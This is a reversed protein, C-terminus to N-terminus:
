GDGASGKGERGVVEVSCIRCFWLSTKLSAISDVATSARRSQIPFVGSLFMYIILVTCTVIITTYTLIPCLCYGPIINRTSICSHDDIGCKCCKRRFWFIIAMSQLLQEVVNGFLVTSLIGVNVPSDRAVATALLGDASDTVAAGITGIVIEAFIALSGCQVRFGVDEVFNIDWSREKSIWALSLSHCVRALWLSHRSGDGM